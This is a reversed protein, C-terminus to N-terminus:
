SGNWWASSAVAPTMEYNPAVTTMAETEAVLKAKDETTFVGATVPNFKKSKADIEADVIHDNLMVIKLINMGYKIIAKDAKKGFRLVALRADLSGNDSERHKGAQVKSAIVFASLNVMAYRDADESGSVYSMSAIHFPVKMKKLKNTTWFGFVPRLEKLLEYYQQKTYAM